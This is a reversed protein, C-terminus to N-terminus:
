SGRMSAGHHLTTRVCRRLAERPDNTLVDVYELVELGQEGEFVAGGVAIGPTGATGKKLKEALLDAKALQQASGVSIFIADFPREAVIESMSKEDAGFCL